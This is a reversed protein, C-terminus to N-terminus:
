SKFSDYIDRLSQDHSITPSWNLVGKALSFDAYKVQDDNPRLFESQVGVKLNKGSYEIISDLISRISVTTGKGLVFLREEPLIELISCYAKVIDRVDSFDRQAELNGVPITSGDKAEFVRKAFASCVFNPSQGPGIHNFPRVCYGRFRDSDFSRVIYEAAMKSFAYPICPEPETAESCAGAISQGGYVLATSIHLFNIKPLQSAAACVNHTGVVNVRSLEVRDLAAEGVHAIGGLHIIADPEAKRVMSEVASADRIDCPLFPGAEVIQVKNPLSTASLILDHGKSRLEPVLHSAVFGSAGTILVRM